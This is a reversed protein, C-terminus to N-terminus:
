HILRRRSALGALLRWVLLGCLEGVLAREAASPSKLTGLRLLASLRSRCTVHEAGERRAMTHASTM